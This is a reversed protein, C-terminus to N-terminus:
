SRKMRAITNQVLDATQQARYEEIARMYSAEDPYEDLTPPVKLPRYEPLSESKVSGRQTGSSAPASTNRVGAGAGGSATNNTGGGSVRERSIHEPLDSDFLGYKHVDKGVRIAGSVTSVAGNGVANGLSGSTRILNEGGNKGIIERAVLDMNEEGAASAVMVAGAGAALGVAIGGARGLSGAVRRVNEQREFRQRDEPTLWGKIDETRFNKFNATERQRDMMKMDRAFSEADKYAQGGVIGRDSAVQAFEAEMQRGADIRSQLTVKAENYQAIREGSSSIAAKYEAIENSLRREETRREKQSMGRSSSQLAAMKKESEQLARNNSAITTREHAISHNITQMREQHSGLNELNALRNMAFKQYRDAAGGDRPNMKKGVEDMHKAASYVSAARMAGADFNKVTNGDKSGGKDGASLVEDAKKTLEAGTVGGESPIEQGIKSNINDGMANHDDVPGGAGEGATNGGGDAPMDEIIPGGVQDADTPASHQDTGGTESADLPAESTDLPAESSGGAGSSEGAPVEPTPEPPQTDNDITDGAMNAATEGEETSFAERAGAEETPTSGDGNLIGAAESAASESASEIPTDAATGDSSREGAGKDDASQNAAGIENGAKNALEDMRSDTEARDAAARDARDAGGMLGEAVGGIATKLGNIAAAGLALAGGISGMKVGFSNGLMNLIQNRAPIVSIFITIIIVAKFLGDVLGAADIHKIVLGPLFMISLDILPIFTNTFFVGAWKSVASKDRMGVLVFFPFAGFLVLQIIAVKFYNIVYVLPVVASVMFFAIANPISKHEEWVVYYPAELGTVATTVSERNGTGMLSTEYTYTVTQSNENPDFFGGQVIKDYLFISAANRATCAWDVIQPMIFLLVFALFASMVTDKMARYSEMEGLLMARVILALTTVFLFCLVLTRFIVYLMSGAMGYMNLDTLDFVFISSGTGNTIHGMIVGNVSGDVKGAKLARSIWFGMDVIVESIKTQVVGVNSKEWGSSGLDVAKGNITVSISNPDDRTPAAETITEGTSVGGDKDRVWSNYGGSEAGEMSGVMDGIGSLQDAADLAYAKVPFLTVCAVWVFLVMKIVIPKIRSNMVAGEGIMM